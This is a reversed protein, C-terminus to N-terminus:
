AAGRRTSLDCTVCTEQHIPHYQRFPHPVPSPYSPTAASFVLHGAFACVRLTNGLKSSLREIPNASVNLTHLRKLRLLSAPFATLNNNSVNLTRLHPVAAALGDPLSSLSNWALDLVQM